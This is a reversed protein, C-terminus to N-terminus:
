QFWSTPDPWNQKNILEEHNYTNIRYRNKDGNINYKQFHIKNDYFKYRITIM